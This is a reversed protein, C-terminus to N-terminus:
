TKNISRGILAAGKLAMYYTTNYILMLDKEDGWDGWTWGGPRFVLVGNEDTKWIKLYKRVGDYSDNITQKDGTHLYYNWFGYYGISSLMQTPLEKNWNAAPIPSFITSDKRQWGILEYMGKKLLSHSNPCLAYFAEGGENVEDGWWQARERDPCDMYNDRMTVYLTRRSKEWIRNLFDDSSTFSGTFETNFGTQRYKLDLVKVGKPISYFVKHGNLWGYSEYEQQGNRTVYQAYMNPTGGGFLNDTKITIVAGGEAEVILYPTFQYNAPLVCTIITDSACFMPFSLNNSYSTLGFDKWQPIIRESLNNWPAVPPRGLVEADRWSSDDFEPIYWQGLDNRADYRISSESLRFNPKPFHCTEYAPNQLVKWSDDSVIEFDPQICEFLFGFKGSSVHSFGDKGFYWCLVAISNRGKVLYEAIDVEDYYTDLPNPGRKVGGEFVVMEGNIWLWYKSDVAIKSLAVSPVDELNFDKRFCYWSNSENQGFPDTIWSAQWREGAQLLNISVSLIFLLLIIKAKNM